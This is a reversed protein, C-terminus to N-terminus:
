GEVRKLTVTFTSGKGPESRARLDGGMGRALDRSIALGLGTGGANRTYSRDVQVFPEFITELQEAPIGVGTDSVRVFAVSAPASGDARDAIEVAIRGGPPTFKVANSLLNLLVQGLKERDAWVFVTPRGEDEPMRVSLSLGREAVQPEILPLLNAMVDRVLVAQMDFTVRGSEIRAYDLVDSILGLLHRQARAVRGLADLQAETVPGHLGLEMLQVHGAIANLPTRLEHSMTALFQSKAQNAAEAEHRAAREGEILTARELAQGAQAALTEFFAREEPDFRREGEFSFSLAAVTGGARVPLGAFAQYGTERIAPASTPYRREAEGLTSLYVPVGHEVADSVPRGAVLPYRTFRRTTDEGYGESALTEFERRSPDLRAFSGAVAGVADCGHHVVLRAVEEADLAGALASTVRQLATARRLAAEVASHLRARALAAAARRAVEEAMALDAEGFQRGSEASALSLVGVPRGNVGRLPVSLSSRLRVRRLIALHDSDQAVSSLIDDPIDPALEPEGTRLVKGTGFPADLDIPWRAMIERGLQVMLPDRHAVAAPRVKGGELVEVFCWDALAPVALEAVSQLTAEVDLSQALRASADALFAVRREAAEAQERAAREAALLREREGEATRQATVDRNLSMVGMATPIIRTEYWRDLPPVYETYEVPRQEAVARRSETEFKTGVLWPFVDWAVLGIVSEPAQGPPTGAAEFLERHLARGAPNVYEYRWEADYSAAADPLADFITTMRARSERAARQSRAAAAALASVLASAAIFILFTLLEGPAFPSFTARPEVLYYHVALVAGLAAVVAAVFGAHWAAFLVAVWFIVFQAHAVWPALALTFALAVLWVAAAAGARLTAARWRSRAPAA